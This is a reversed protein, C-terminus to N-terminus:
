ECKRALCLKELEPFPKYAVKACQDKDAEVLQNLRGGYFIGVRDKSGMYQRSENRGNFRVCVMYRPERSFTAIAPESILADRVNTPDPLTSMLTDLIEQKYNTPVTNPDADKKDDVACAALLFGLALLSGSKAANSGM